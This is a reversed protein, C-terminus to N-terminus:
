GRWGQTADQASNNLLLSPDPHYYLTRRNCYNQYRQYRHNHQPNVRPIHWSTQEHTKSPKWHYTRKWGPSFMALSVFASLYIRLARRRTVNTREDVRTAVYEAFDTLYEMFRVLRYADQIRQSETRSVPTPQSYQELLSTLYHRSRSAIDGENTWVSGHDVLSSLYRNEELYHSNFVVHIAAQDRQRHRETYGRTHTMVAPGAFCLSHLFKWREQFVAFHMDEEVQTALLHMHAVAMRTWHVLADLWMHCYVGHLMAQTHLAWAAFDENCHEYRLGMFYFVGRHEMANWDTSGGQYRHLQVYMRDLYDTGLRSATRTLEDRHLCLELPYSTGGLASEFMKSRAWRICRFGRCGEDDYLPDYPDAGVSRCHEMWEELLDPEPEGFGHVRAPEHGEDYVLPNMPDRGMEVEYMMDNTVEHFEKWFMRREYQSLTETAQRDSVYRLKSRVRRQEVPHDICRPMPVICSDIWMKTFGDVFAPSRQPDLPAVSLPERTPPTGARQFSQILMDPTRGMRRLVLSADQVSEVERFSETDPIGNYDFSFDLFQSLNLYFINRPCRCYRPELYWCHSQYEVVFEATNLLRRLRRNVWNLRLLVMLDCYLLLHYRWVEMGLVDLSVSDKPYVSHVSSLRIPSPRHDLHDVIDVAM